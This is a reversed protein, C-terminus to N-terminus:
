RKIHRSLFPMMKETVLEALKKVHEHTLQEGEKAGCNKFGYDIAEALVRNKEREFSLEIAYPIVQDFAKILNENNYKEYRYASKIDEINLTTLDVKLLLEEGSIPNIAYTREINSGSYNESLCVIARQVGFYEVYAILIGLAQNGFISVCHLPTRPPRGLIVDKEYYYGFCPEGDKERLYTMVNECSHPNIGAEYALALATKVLSRGAAVGGFALKIQLPEDLYESKSEMSELVKEIDITPFKHKLEKVMRRAEDLNRATINITKSIDENILVQPKSPTMGGEHHVLYEKGSITKLKEPKPIGRERNVMFLINFPNLQKSLEADWNIGSTNNCANCIFGKVKKRGGISNPIIHEKSDNKDNIEQDCLACFGM